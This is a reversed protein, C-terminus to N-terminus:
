NSSGNTRLVQYGHQAGSSLENIQIHYRRFFLKLFRLIDILVAMHYTRAEAAGAPNQIIRSNILDNSPYHEQDYEKLDQYFYQCDWPNTFDTRSLEQNLQRILWKHTLKKFM